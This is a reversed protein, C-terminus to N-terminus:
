TSTTTRSTRPSARSSPWAWRRRWCCASAASSSGADHVRQFSRARVRRDCAPLDAPDLLSFVQNITALVLALAILKWYNRLYSYLLKM